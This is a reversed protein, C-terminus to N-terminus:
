ERPADAALASLFGAPDDLHLAILRVPRSVGLLRV